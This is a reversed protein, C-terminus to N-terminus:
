QLLAAAERRLVHAELWNLRDSGMQATERPMRGGRQDLWHAAKALWWRAERLEGMQQHALALWLWNLVARGPRGEAALSREAFIAAVATQGARVDLAARQTAAWYALNNQGLEKTALRVVPALDGAAFPVLTCARAALYPRLPGKPQCHALLHACARRYGRRDGALLQAAAYEFWLEGNDTEALEMGRAYCTAAQGWESWAVHKRAQDFWAAPDTAKRRDRGPNKHRAALDLIGELLVHAEEANPAIELTKRLLLLGDEVRGHHLLVRGFGLPALYNGPDIELARRYAAEADNWYGAMALADVLHTHLSPTGPSLEVARRYAALAEDTRGMQALALGLGDYAGANEPRLAVAARYYAAAESWRTQLTLAFGMERHVWFNRPQRRCAEELLRGSESSAGVNRLLLALLALQHDSPPPSSTFADAALDLLKPRNKWTAPDRFGARWGPEPDASQAIRLLREVLPADKLVFAVYARDELAAVLQTRIASARVAAAVKDAEVDLNLGASAFARHFDAARQQYDYGGDTQRPNAERAAELNAAAQFDAQAQRLQQELLPSNAEALHVQADKLVFLTERWREEQRLDNARRLAIEITERAQNERRATAAQRDAELRATAAQRDAELHYLWVGTGAAAVLAVLIAGILMAVAPRRRAWKVAREIVGIPRALVPKDDLFRHLDDALDQASAYRRAPSKQLCKLCVTELDRPVWANLRSPPTPETAIVQQITDGVTSGNFPPRGTLLEYLVSGLAYVDAAPGVAGARSLVQEPAMYSPTGVCDGTRTLGPGAALARALGFDAIKPVNDATLLVNAPKLDRHLFGSQHAFQVASALTAVLEAARQPAQPKGALSRALSGGEVCEMTFYPRGAVEGADHVQVINPHRLAAVAEAERRFRALAESGAYAGALLMKLAVHRNLKLQRAKFVVGMGGRGLVGEVEYGPIRPLTQDEPPPSASDTPTPFLADLNGRLGSM